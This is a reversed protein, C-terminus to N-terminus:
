EGGKTEPEKKRELEKTHMEVVMTVLELFGNLSLQGDLWKESLTAIICAIDQDIYM